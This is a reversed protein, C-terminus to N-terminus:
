SYFSHELTQVAGDLQAIASDLEQFYDGTRTSSRRLERMAAAIQKAGKVQAAVSRDLQELCPQLERVRDRSFQQMQTAGDTMGSRMEQLMEEIKETASRTNGALERIERAVIAFGRGRDGARAAEISANLALVKTQASVENITAIISDIKNAKNAATQLNQSLRDATVALEDVATQMQVMTAMTSRADASMTEATTEVKQTSDIQESIVSELQKGSAAVRTTLAVSHRVRDVLSNLLTISQKLKSSAVTEARYTQVYEWGLGVLPVLYAVIKLFHAVNFNSDFLATSGFAMYIQVAINPIASIVVAYTFPNPDRKYFQPYVVLGAFAFLVLPAVDWPRSIIADPFMTTPLRDRTACIYVIGYAIIGFVASVVLVFGLGQRHSRRTEPTGLLLLSTGIITILANFLRCIAWTFPILNQNDAVAEILRDAALTHFGDMVGSFFLAMGIIPTMANGKISYHLFSLLVIFIAACFASWELITHVFSGALHRHLTDVLQHPELSPLRELVIAEGPTGFDIGLLQAIFPVICVIAIAWVFQSPIRTASPDELQRSRQWGQPYIETQSTRTEVTL